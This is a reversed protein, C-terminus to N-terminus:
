KIIQANDVHFVGKKIETKLDKKEKKEASDANNYILIGFFLSVFAWVFYPVMRLVDVGDSSSLTYTVGVAIITLYFMNVFAKGVEKRTSNTLFDLM